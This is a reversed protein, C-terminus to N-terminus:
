TYENVKGYKEISILSAYVRGLNSYGIYVNRM